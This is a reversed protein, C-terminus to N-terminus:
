IFRLFLGAARDALSDTVKDTAKEKSWELLRGIIWSTGSLSITIAVVSAISPSHIVRGLGALIAGILPLLIWAVVSGIMLTGYLLLLAAWFDDLWRSIRVVIAAAIGFGFVVQMLGLFTAVPSISPAFVLHVTVDALAIMPSIIPMRPVGLKELGAVWNGVTPWGNELPSARCPSPRLLDSTTIKPMDLQAYTPYPEISSKHECDSMADAILNSMTVPTFSHLAALSKNTAEPSAFFICALAVTAQVLTKIAREVAKHLWAPPPAATTNRVKPRLEEPTEPPSKSPYDPGSMKM